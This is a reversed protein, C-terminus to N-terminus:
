VAQSRQLPEAEKRLLSDIENVLTLTSFPKSLRVPMVQPTVTEFVHRPMYQSTKAGSVGIVIPIPRDMERAIRSLDACFTVGGRPSFQGDNIEFFADVVVLDPWDRICHQIGADTTPHHTVEYGRARLGGMWEYALRVDDEVIAIKCKETTM